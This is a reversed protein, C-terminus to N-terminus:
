RLTTTRNPSRTPAETRWPCWGRLGHAVSRRGSQLTSTGTTTSRWAEDGFGLRAREAGTTSSRYTASSEDKAAPRFCHLRAGRVRVGMGRRAARHRSMPPRARRASSSVAGPDARAISRWRTGLRCSRLLPWMAGPTGWGSRPPSSCPAGADTRTTRLRTSRPAARPTRWSAGFRRTSPCRVARM